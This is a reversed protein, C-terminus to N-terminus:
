IMGHGAKCCTWSTSLFQTSKSVPFIGDTNEADLDESVLSQVVKEARASESPLAAEDESSELAAEDQTSQNEPSPPPDISQYQPSRINSQYAKPKLDSSGKLCNLFLQNKKEKRIFHIRLWSSSLVGSGSDLCSSGSLRRSSLDGCSSDLWSSGNLRRSSLFVCRPQARDAM